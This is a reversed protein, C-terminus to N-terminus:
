PGKRDKLDQKLWPTLSVENTNGTKVATAIGREVFRSVIRHTKLKSLGSEKVILKQLHTGNHTALVELVKREEPKSTRIVTEWNENAGPPSSQANAVAAQHPAAIKIEPYALYYVLGFVGVVVLIFLTLISTWVYSPMTAVTGKAYQSGMM